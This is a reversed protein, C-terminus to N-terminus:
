CLVALNNFNNEILRMIKKENAKMQVKEQTTKDGLGKLHLMGHVLYLLLEKDFSNEFDKAQQEVVELCIYIEGIEEIKEDQYDFTIVDTTGEHNLFFNNIREMERENTLIVALLSNTSFNFYEYLFNAIKM